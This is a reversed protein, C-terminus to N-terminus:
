KHRLTLPKLGFATVGIKALENLQGISPDSAAGEIGIAVIAYSPYAWWAGGAARAGPVGVPTALAGIAGDVEPKGGVPLLRQLHNQGGILVAYILGSVGGGVLRDFGQAKWRGVYKSAEDPAWTDVAFGAGRGAALAAKVGAPTTPAAGSWAVGNCVSHTVGSVNDAASTRPLDKVVYVHQFGLIAALKATPILECAGLDARHASAAAPLALVAAVLGLALLSHTHAGRM